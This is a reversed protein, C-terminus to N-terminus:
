WLGCDKAFSVYNDVVDDPFGAVQRVAFIFRLIDVLKYQELM